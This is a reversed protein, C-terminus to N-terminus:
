TINTHLDHSNLTQPADTLLFGTFNSVTKPLKRREKSFTNLIKKSIQRQLFIINQMQVNTHKVSELILVAASTSENVPKTKLSKM